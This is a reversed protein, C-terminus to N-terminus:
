RARTELLARARRGRVYGPADHLSELGPVVVRVVPVGFEPRTLDVVTVEDLGVAALCRLEHDVDEAFSECERTPADRFDYGGDATRELQERLRAVRDPNRAREFFDRDADDRAGAIYTLRCQAAETVARILAIARVPHCGSGFAFYLQRFHNPIRDVVVCRFSALGVDSTTNWIGVSVGARELRDLLACCDADDITRPDVRSEGRSAGGRLSWLANADREVVECIAHSIAELPHNGSALGNSSMVFSGSGTPLPLSFNTHVIEYPLWRPDGRSADRGEIWMTQKHPHFTSVTLRPLSEVDVVPAARRMETWSALRLPHTVHEAHYAEIAEMVGSAKAADLDLGKGQFVALSRSNPRYVAVVPIGVRDLGTVNAVRTIGALPLLPEVARLTAAPSIRRHTGRRHFKSSPDGGSNM